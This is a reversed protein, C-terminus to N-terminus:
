DDRYDSLAIPLRNTQDGTALSASAAPHDYSIGALGRTTARYYAGSDDRVRMASVVGVTTADGGTMTKGLHRRHWM